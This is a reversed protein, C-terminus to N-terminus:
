RSNGDSYDPSCFEMTGRTLEIEFEFPQVLVSDEDFNAVFKQAKEPLIGKWIPKTIEREDEMEPSDWDPWSVNNRVIYCEKKNVDSFGIIKIENMALAIPCQRTDNGYGRDIHQQTVNVKLKM